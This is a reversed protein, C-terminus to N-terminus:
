APWSDFLNFIIRLTVTGEDHFASSGLGEEMTGSSQPSGPVVNESSPDLIFICDIRIRM